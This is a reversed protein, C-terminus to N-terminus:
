TPKLVAGAPVIGARVFRWLAILLKRAVAVISLRRMRSAAQSTRKRFWQSLGSNPQHLLWVWALEVIATRVRANGAKSIGQSRISAGSDYPAPALGAYAAVEGRNKFDRHLIERVLLAASAPGIGRLKTLHAIQGNRDGATDVVTPADREAEVERIMADVLDLRVIERRIEALLRPPFSHGDGTRLAQLRDRDRKRTPELDRVGQGFLLGKIRNIHATREHILRQRERHSRREDELDHPPVRVVACVRREGRQQAVLIRVLMEAELRDTKARRGRRDVHISAPDLVLNHIGQAELWRHLWFGDHGAEYCTVVPVEKGTDRSIRRQVEALKALLNATDGGRLKHLSIRDSVPTLIALLWSTKSLELAAFITESASM